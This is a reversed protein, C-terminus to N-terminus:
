AEDEPEPIPLEFQKEALGVAWRFSRRDEPTESYADRAMKLIKKAEARQEQQNPIEKSFAYTLDEDGAHYFHMYLTKQRGLGNLATDGSVQAVNLLTAGNLPEGSGPYISFALRVVPGYHTKYFELRRVIRSPGRVADIEEREAAVILHGQPPRMSQREGVSIMRAQVGREAVAAALSQRIREPLDLGKHASETV